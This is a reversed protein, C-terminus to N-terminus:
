VDLERSLAEIRFLLDIPFKVKAFALERLIWRFEAKQAFERDETAELQQKLSRIREVLHQNVPSM